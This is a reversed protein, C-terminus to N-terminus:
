YIFPPPADAALGLLQRVARTHGACCVQQALTECESLTRQAITHALYPIFPADV